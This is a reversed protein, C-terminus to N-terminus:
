ELRCTVSAKSLLPAARASLKVQDHSLSVVEDKDFDLDPTTSEDLCFLCHRRSLPSTQECGSLRIEDRVRLNLIQGPADVEKTDGQISRAADHPNGM